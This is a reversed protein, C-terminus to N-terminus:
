LGNAQVPLLHRAYAAHDLVVQAAYRSAVQCVLQQFGGRNARALAGVERAFRTRVGTISVGELTSAAQIHAGGLGAAWVEAMELLSEGDHAVAPFREYVPSLESVSYYGAAAPHVEKDLEIWGCFADMAASGGLTAAGEARRAADNLFQQRFATRDELQMFHYATPKAQLKIDLIRLVGYWNVLAFYRPLGCASHGVGDARYRAVDKVEANVEKGVRKFHQTLAAAVAEREHMPCAQLQGEVARLKPEAAEDNTVWKRLFRRRHNDREVTALFHVLKSRRSGPSGLPEHVSAPEGHKSAVVTRLYKRAFAEVAKKKVPETTCTGGNAEAVLVICVALRWVDYQYDGIVAEDFATIGYLPGQEEGGYTGFSETTCDGCIWTRTAASGFKSLRDDGSFDAWFLHNTALFFALPSAAMSAYKAHLAAPPLARNWEEIAAIVHM